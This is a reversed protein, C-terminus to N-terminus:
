RPIAIPVDHRASSKPDMGNGGCLEGLSHWSRDTRSVQTTGVLHYASKNNESRQKITGKRQRHYM